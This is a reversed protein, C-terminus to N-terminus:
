AVDVIQAATLPPGALHYYFPHDPDYFPERDPYYLSAIEVNWIARGAVWEAGEGGPMSREFDALLLTRRGETDHDAIACLDPADIVAPIYILVDRHTAILFRRFACGAELGFADIYAALIQEMAMDRAATLSDAMRGIEERRAETAPLRGTRPELGRRVMDAMADLEALLGLADRELEEHLAAVQELDVEAECLLGAALAEPLPMPFRVDFDWPEAMQAKQRSEITRNM